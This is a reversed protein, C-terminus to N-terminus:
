RGETTWLLTAEPPDVLSAQVGAQRRPSRPFRPLHRLQRLEVRQPTPHVVRALLASLTFAYLPLHHYHSAAVQAPSDVHATLLRRCRSRTDTYECRSPGFSGCDVASASQLGARWANALGVVGLLGPFEEEAGGVDVAAGVGRMSARDERKKERTGDARDVRQKDRVRQAQEKDTREDELTTALSRAVARQTKLLKSRRRQQNREHRKAKARAVPDLLLLASEIALTSTTSDVSLDASTDEDDTENQEDETDVVLTLDSDLTAVSHADSGRRAGLSKDLTRVSVPSEPAATMFGVVSREHSNASAQSTTTGRRAMTAGQVNKSRSEQEFDTVVMAFRGVGGAAVPYGAVTEGLNGPALKSPLFNLAPLYSYPSSGSSLPSPTPKVHSLPLPPVSRNPSKKQITLKNDKATWVVADDAWDLIAMEELSTSERM